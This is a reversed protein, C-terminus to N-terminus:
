LLKSFFTLLSPVSFLLVFCYRWFGPLKLVHINNVHFDSSFMLHCFSHTSEFPNSWAHGLTLCLCAFCLLIILVWFFIFLLIYVTYFVTTHHMAVSCYNNPYIQVEGGLHGSRYESTEVCCLPLLFLCALSRLTYCSLHCVSSCSSHSCMELHRKKDDNIWSSFSQFQSCSKSESTTNQMPYTFVRVCYGYVCLWKWLCSLIQCTHLLLAWM